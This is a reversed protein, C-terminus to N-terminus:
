GVFYFWGGTPRTPVEFPGIGDYIEGEKDPDIGLQNLLARFAQPYVTTRQVAFNRCYICGCREAGGAAVTRYAAVTAERDYRIFQDGLRLEDM